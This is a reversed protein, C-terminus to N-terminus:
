AFSRMAGEAAAPASAVSGSGAGRVLRELGALCAITDEDTVPGFHSIRFIKGKLEGQGGAIKIGTSSQLDKLLKQGDIGAPVWGATVSESPTRRPVREVGIAQLGARAGASRRAADAWVREMGRGLFHALSARLGVVLTIAPTFGIDGEAQKKFERPLD